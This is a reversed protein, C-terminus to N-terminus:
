HSNVVVACDHDQLLEGSARNGAALDAHDDLLVFGKAGNAFTEGVLVLTHMGMEVPGADALVHFPDVGVLTEREIRIARYHFGVLPVPFPAWEAGVKELNADLAQRVDPRICDIHIHLQDQSRGVASNIALSVADRPLSVPLRSNVFSRAEWAAEWYNTAGPVLIKPDEIGGIRETPILLFQAVGVIDKLVAYHGGLDVAACPSPDHDAEDHPVCKGSVIKWLASPDAARAGFPALLFGLVALWLM